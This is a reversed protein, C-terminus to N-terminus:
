RKSSTKPGSLHKIHKFLGIAAIILVPWLQALLMLYVFFLFFRRSPWNKSAHHMIAIGCFFYPLLLSLFAANGLFKLSEGGILAALGCIMLLSLLWDPPLFPQISFDPRLNQKQLLLIRHAMWGHAYLALAWFWITVSFILFSWPGALLNIIDGYEQDLDAFASRIEHAMIQVINEPQNAYYFTVLAILACACITLHLMIIGIPYWQQTGDAATRSHLSYDAMHWSPLGLTLFFLVAIPPGAIIGIIIVAALSGLLAIKPQTHMGYYLLPLTPLFLFFFGLGAAVVILFIVAALVGAILAPALPHRHM